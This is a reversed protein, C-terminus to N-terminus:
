TYPAGQQRSRAEGHAQHSWPGVGCAGDLHAPPPRHRPRLRPNGTPAEPPSWADTGGDEAQGQGGATCRVRAHEPGRLQGVQLRRMDRERVDLDRGDLDRRDLDSRDRRRRDIDAHGGRALQKRAGVRWLWRRRRLRTRRGPAPRCWRVVAALWRRRAGPPGWRAMGTGGVGCGLVGRRAPRPMGASGSHRPAVAPRRSAVCGRVDGWGRARLRGGSGCM